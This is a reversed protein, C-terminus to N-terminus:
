FSIASLSSFRGLGVTTVVLKRELCVQCLAKNVYQVESDRVERIAEVAISGENSSCCTALCRNGPKREHRYRLLTRLARDHHTRAMDRDIQEEM